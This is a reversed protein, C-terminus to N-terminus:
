VVTLQIYGCSFRGSEPVYCLIKQGKKLKGSNFLEELIIFISASGTNGKEALNTFWKDYPIEFGVNRMGEFLRERFYGSSYHPVFYDFDQPTIQRQEKLRTLAQEVTVKVINANLLKVDQKVAFVSENARTQPDYSAWSKLTGDARKDAGAYMCADLQNAYSMMDIWDIKLSLGLANPQHSLLSPEHPNSAWKGWSM